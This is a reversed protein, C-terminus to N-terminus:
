TVDARSPSEVVRSPLATRIRNAASRRIAGDNAAGIPRDDLEISRCHPAHTRRHLELDHRPRSMQEFLWAREFQDRLESEFPARFM